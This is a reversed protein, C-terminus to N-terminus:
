CHMCVIQLSHLVNFSVNKSVWFIIFFALIWLCLALHYALSNTKPLKGQGSEFKRKQVHRAYLIGVAYVDSLISFCRCCAWPSRNEKVEIDSKNEFKCVHEFQVLKCPIETTGQRLPVMLQTEPSFQAVTGSYCVMFPMASETVRSVTVIPQHLPSGRTKVHMEGTLNSKYPPGVISSMVDCLSLFWIASDGIRLKASIQFLLGWWPWAIDTLKGM